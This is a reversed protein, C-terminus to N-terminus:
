VQDVKLSLNKDIDVEICGKKASFLYAGKFEVNFDWGGDRLIQQAERKIQPYFNHHIATCFL